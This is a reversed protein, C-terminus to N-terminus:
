KEPEGTSEHIIRKRMSELSKKPLTCRATDRPLTPSKESPSIEKDGHKESQILIMSQVPVTCATLGFSILLVIGSFCRTITRVNQTKAMNEVCLSVFRGSRKRLRKMFLQYHRYNLSGDSPLHEDDYTLTLFINDQHMKSECYCRVAWNERKRIRCGICQGCSLQIERSNPKEFFTVPGGDLPKFATLPRYCTM